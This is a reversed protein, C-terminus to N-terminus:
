GLSHEDNDKREQRLDEDLQKLDIELNQPMILLDGFEIPRVRDKEVAEEIPINPVAGTWVKLKGRKVVRGSSSPEIQKVTKKVEYCHQSQPM